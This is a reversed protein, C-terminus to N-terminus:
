GGIPVLGRALCNVNAFGNGNTRYIWVFRRGGIRNYLAVNVNRAARATRDRNGSPSGYLGTAPCTIHGPV